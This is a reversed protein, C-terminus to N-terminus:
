GPRIVETTTNCNCRSLNAAAAQGLHRPQRLRLHRLDSHGCLKADRRTADRRRAANRELPGTSRERERIITLRFPSCRAVKAVRGTERERQDSVKRVDLYRVRPKTRLNEKPVTTKRRAPSDGQWVKVPLGHENGLRLGEERRNMRPNQHVRHIHLANYAFLRGFYPPRVRLGMPM